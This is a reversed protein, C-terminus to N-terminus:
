TDSKKTKTTGSENSKKETSLAANENELFEIYSKFLDLVKAVDKFHSDMRNAVVRSILHKNKVFLDYLLEFAKNNIEGPNM